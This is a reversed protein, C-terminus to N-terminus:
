AGEQQAAQRRSRHWIWAYGLLAALLLLALILGVEHIHERIFDRVPVGYLVALIGWTFYRISRGVTVALFFRRFRIRFVGASLVFIKFPTPPPLISPVLIAWLGWRQYLQRVQELRASNLRRQLYRGGRRGLLYLITCGTVSGAITMLVYYSMKEWSQGTSLIVILIDNGEPISLFSSDCLAVFFLGPGGLALAFGM